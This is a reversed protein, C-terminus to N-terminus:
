TYYMLYYDIKAKLILLLNHITQGKDHTQM